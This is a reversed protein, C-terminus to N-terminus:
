NVYAMRLCQSRVPRIAQWKKSREKNEETIGSKPQIKEPIYAPRPVKSHTILIGFVLLHSLYKLKETEYFIYLCRHLTIQMMNQFQCRVSRIIKMTTM